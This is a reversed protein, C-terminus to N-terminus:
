YIIIFLLFNRDNIFATIDHRNKLYQKQFDFFSINDSLSVGISNNWELRPVILSKVTLLSHQLTLLM